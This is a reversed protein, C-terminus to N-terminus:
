HRNPALLHLVMGWGSQFLDAWFGSRPLLNDGIHRGENASPPLLMWYM